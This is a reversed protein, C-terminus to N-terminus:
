AGNTPCVCGAFSGILLRQVFSHIFAHLRREPSAGLDVGSDPPHRKLSGALGHQLVATYLGEKNRFHYNM